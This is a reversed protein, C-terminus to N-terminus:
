KRLKEAMWDAAYIKVWHMQEGVPMAHMIKEENQFALEQEIVIEEKRGQSKNFISKTKDFDMWNDYKSHVLLYDCKVAGETLCSMGKQFQESDDTGFQYTAWTGSKMWKPVANDAVQDVYLPFLNVCCKVEEYEAAFRYAYGGGM